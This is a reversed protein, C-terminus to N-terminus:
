SKVKALRELEKEVDELTKFEKYVSAFLLASLKDIKNLEKLVMQGIEKSKIIQQESNLFKQEIKEIVENVKTQSIDRKGLAKMIGRKIKERDFEEIRGNRKEVNLLVKEIREYTTFRKTCKECERRRRTSNTEQNDRKDVVRTYQNKCYPCLM